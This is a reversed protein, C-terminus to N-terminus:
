YIGSREEIRFHIAMQALAPVSRGKSQGPVFRADRLAQVVAADCSPELSRVVDIGYARGDPEVTFRVIVLGEIAKKLASFPYEILMSGIRLKPPTDVVPATNATQLFGGTKVLDRLTLTAVAAARRHAIRGHANRGTIEATELKDSKLEDEPLVDNPLFREVPRGPVESRVEHATILTMPESTPRPPLYTYVGGSGSFPFKLPLNALLLFLILTAISTLM